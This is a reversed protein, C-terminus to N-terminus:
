TSLFAHVRNNLMKTGTSRCVGGKKTKNSARRSPFVYQKRAVTVGYVAQALRWAPKQGTRILDEVEVIRALLNLVGADLQVQALRQCRLEPRNICCSDLAADASYLICRVPTEGSATMTEAINQVQSQPGIPANRDEGIRITPRTSLSCKIGTLSM